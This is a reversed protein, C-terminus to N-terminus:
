LNWEVGNQANAFRNYWDPNAEKLNSHVAVRDAEITERIRSKFDKWSENVFAGDRFIIPIVKLRNEDSLNPDTFFANGARRLLAEEKRITVIVDHFDAWVILRNLDGGKFFHEEDTEPERSVVYISEYRTAYRELLAKLEMRSKIVYIAVGALLLIMGGAALGTKYILLAALAAGAFYLVKKM